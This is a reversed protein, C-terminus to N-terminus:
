ISNKLCLRKFDDFQQRPDFCKESTRRLGILCIRRFNEPETFRRNIEFFRFNESFILRDFKRRHFKFKQLKQDFIAPLNMRAVFKQVFNPTIVRHRRRPRNVHMDRPKTLFEFGIRFMRLKDLGNV